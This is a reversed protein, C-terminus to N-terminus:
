KPPEKHFKQDTGGGGASISRLVTLTEKDGSVSWKESVELEYGQYTARYDLLLTTGRYVLSAPVREMGFECKALDAKWMGSVDPSELGAAFCEMLALSLPPILIMRLM